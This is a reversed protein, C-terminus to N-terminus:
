LHCINSSALEQAHINFSAGPFVSLLEDPLETIIEPNVIWCRVDASNPDYALFRAILPLSKRVM